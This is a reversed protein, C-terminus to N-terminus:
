LFSDRLLLTGTPDFSFLLFSNLVVDSVQMVALFQISNIHPLGYVGLSSFLPHTEDAEETTQRYGATVQARGEEGIM